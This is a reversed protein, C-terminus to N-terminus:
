RSVTRSLLITKLRGINRLLYPGLIRRNEALRPQVARRNRRHNRAM